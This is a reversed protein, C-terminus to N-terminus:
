HTKLKEPPARGNQHELHAYKRSQKDIKNFSGGKRKNNQMQRRELSKWRDMKRRERDTERDAKGVDDLYREKQWQGLGHRWIIHMHKSM